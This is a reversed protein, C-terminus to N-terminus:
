NVSNVFSITNRNNTQLVQAKHSSMTDGIVRYNQTSCCFHLKALPLYGSCAPFTFQGLNIATASGDKTHLYLNDGTRSLDIGYRLTHAYTTTKKQLFCLHDLHPVSTLSDKGFMSIYWATDSKVGGTSSSPASLVCVIRENLFPSLNSTNSQLCESQHPALRSLSLLM